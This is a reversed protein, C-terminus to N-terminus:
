IFLLYSDIYKIPEKKNLNNYNSIILNSMRKCYSILLKIIYMKELDPVEIEDLMKSIQRRKENIKKDLLETIEHNLKMEYIETEM